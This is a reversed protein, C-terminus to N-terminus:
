PGSQRRRPGAKSKGSAKNKWEDSLLEESRRRTISLAVRRYARVSAFREEISDPPACPQSVYDHFTNQEHCSGSLVLRSSPTTSAADRQVLADVGFVFEQDALGDLSRSPRRTNGSKLNSTEEETDGDQEARRSVRKFRFKRFASKLFSMRSGPCPAANSDLNDGEFKLDCVCGGSRLKIKDPVHPNFFIGM